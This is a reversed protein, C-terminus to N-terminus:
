ALPEHKGQADSYQTVEVRYFQHQNAANSGTVLFSGSPPNTDTLSVWNPSVLNTTMQITYTQNPTGTVAMQFQGNSFGPSSLVPVPPPSMAIGVLDGLGSILNTNVTAGSTTYEGVTSGRESAVFLDNGSIAVADPLVLGTILSPNVTAGSTTYEGVPNALYNAVFLENGSIAMGYPGDLGCIPSANVTQGGLGYEGITGGSAVCLNQANLTTALSCTLV